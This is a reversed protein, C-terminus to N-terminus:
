ILEKAEDLTVLKGLSGFEHLDGFVEIRISQNIGGIKLPDFGNATILKSVVNGADVNDTAYFEVMRVPTSNAAESLSNASVSGFAKVLPTDKTLLNAIIQGSSQNQDITKHFNGKEDVEIPNSPDVIIKGKLENAYQVVFTKIAEFWIAMIIVNSNKIADEITAATALSGLKTTLVEAKEITQDAIIVKQGGRVLNTALRSGINGTGIIAVIPNNKLHNDM